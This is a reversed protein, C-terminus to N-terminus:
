RGSCCPEDGDDAIVKEIVRSQLLITLIPVDIEVVDDLLLFQMSVLGFGGEVGKRM